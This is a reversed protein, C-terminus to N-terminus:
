DSLLEVLGDESKAVAIYNGMRFNDDNYNYSKFHVGNPYLRGILYGNEELLDYVEALTHRSPLYTTGYEFQIVDPKVGNEKLLGEFGRLVEVEHGEVDIKLFNIKKLGLESVSQMGTLVKCSVPEYVSNEAWPDDLSKLNRSCISSTEDNSTNWNVTVNGSFDSLGYDVIHVNDLGSFSKQLKERVDPIVEFCYVKANQILNLVSKTWDGQNSGVDFIITENDNIFQSYKTLIYREGNLEMNFFDENYYSRLIKECISALKKIVINNRNERIIKKIYNM